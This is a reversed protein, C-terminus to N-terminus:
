IMHCPEMKFILSKKQHPTSQKVKIKAFEKTMSVLKSQLETDFLEFIIQLVLTEMLLQMFVQNEQFYLDLNM